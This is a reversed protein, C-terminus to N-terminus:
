RNQLESFDWILASSDDAVSCLHTPSEPAWAIANVLDKHNKLKAVPLLPQRNRISYIYRTDLLTVYNVDM